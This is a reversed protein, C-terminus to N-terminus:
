SVKSFILTTNSGGFGFSNSMVNNITHPFARTAPTFSLEPMQETFNLGPLVVQHQIALISFVAEVAGAAGLTHGTFAKTSSVFPIRDGFTRMIAAGESLDNIETGTGHANIYDIDSASLSATKLAESIALAAGTGETTSSTAHYAENANAFGSIECIVRGPDATDESELVLFAAGEGITLGNRNRDFPRCGSPSLIELALFGNIAFKTLADSGGAFVRNLYRNRILRAGNMIANASSSCATSVTTVNHRIGLLTATKEGCDASDFLPIYESYEDSELLSRYYKENFDMGGTTNAFVAGTKRAGPDKLGASDMAQRAAVLSLLTNRTFKRYDANLGALRALDSNGYKVEAVPIHGHLSEFGSLRGIGTRLNLLSDLNEGPGNGAATIIGIGTVFVKPFM